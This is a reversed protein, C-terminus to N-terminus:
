IRHVQRGLNQSRLRYLVPSLKSFLTFCITAELSLALFRSAFSPKVKGSEWGIKNKDSVPLRPRFPNKLRQLFFLDIHPVKLSRPKVVAQPDGNARIFLHVPEKFLQLPDYFLNLFGGIWSLLSYASQASDFCSLLFLFGSPLM